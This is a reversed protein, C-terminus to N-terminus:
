KQIEIPSPLRPPHPQSSQLPVAPKLCVAFPGFRGYRIRLLGALFCDQDLKRYSLFAMSWTLWPKPSGGTHERAEHWPMRELKTWASQDRQIKDECRLLSWAVLVRLRSSGINFFCENRLASKAVISRKKDVEICSEATDGPEVAKLNIMLDARDEVVVVRRQLAVEGDKTVSVEQGRTDLLVVDEGISPNCTTLRASFNGGKIIHATATAEVSRKLHAFRVEVTSHKSSVVETKAYSVNGKYSINNYGFFDLCLVKDESSSTGRNKVKLDIEFVPEDWLLIARSPGTLELLSDRAQPSSLTQCNDRGRRFLYNRKSDVSDRVAVVGYVDLPWSLDSTIQAVKVFFVEMTDAPKAGIPLVPIDTYRMPPLETEAEFSNAGNDGYMRLWDNRYVEFSQEAAMEEDMETDTDDSIADEYNREGGQFEGGAAAQDPDSRSGVEQSRPRVNENGGLKAELNATEMKRRRPPFSSLPKAGGGGAAVSLTLTPSSEIPSPGVRLSCQGLSWSRSELFFGLSRLASWATFHLKSNSVGPSEGEAACGDRLAAEMGLVLEGLLEVVVVHRQLLVEGDETIPMRASARPAPLSARLSGARGAPSALSSPRRFSMTCSESSVDETRAYSVAGRYAINNYGFYHLCLVKDDAVDGYVDLPWKIGGTLSAVKVFFIEMTDMPETTDMPEASAPLVPVDTCVHSWCVHLRTLGINFYGENRLASKAVFEINDDVKTRSEATDGLQEAKIGIMLNARDEVVVVHRQLTVEGDQTISVEQGRTDLLVVDEGLSVNCATLFASFNGSGECIRVTITAEVSCKLHAFMVEVRSHRSSVVKTRAYSVNGKYSINNYGFVDLCLIKDESSSGKGKVKLDIEFVPEDWLLIARSPSEGEFSNAGNQGYMMLWDKLYVQFGHYAEDMEMDSTDDDDCERPRKADGGQFVKVAGNQLDLDSRKHGHVNGGLTVELDVPEM